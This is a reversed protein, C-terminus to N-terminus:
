RGATIRELGVEEIMWNGGPARVAVFPVDTFRESGRELDVVVRTTPARRGAVTAESVIRYRDHRLIYAIADMRLEIEERTICRDSLRIWSGMRRFACGLTSGTTDLVAGDETGFIRAMADLDRSNAAQLFREVSLQPQSAAMPGGGSSACGATMMGLVAVAAAVTLLRTLRFLKGM